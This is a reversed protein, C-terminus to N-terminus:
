HLSFHVINTIIFLILLTTIYKISHYYINNTINHSFGQFFPYILNYYVYNIIYGPINSVGIEKFRRTRKRSEQIAPVIDLRWLTSPLIDTATAWRAQSPTLYYSGANQPMVFSFFLWTTQMARKKYFIIFFRTPLAPVNKQCPKNKKKM